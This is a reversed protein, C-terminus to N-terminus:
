TIEPSIITKTVRETVLKGNKYTIYKYYAVIKYKYKKGVKTKETRVWSSSDAGRYM